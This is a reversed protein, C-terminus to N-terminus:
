AAKKQMTEDYFRYKNKGNIKAQYMAIDANSLLADLEKGDFPYVSIGISASSFIKHKKILFPEVFRSIIKEAVKDIDSRDRITSLMIAFEDGGIRAVTDMKRVCEQLRKALSMLLLDGIEHGLMDNIHKLDDIDLYLLALMGQTRDAVFMAQKLRNNFLRRNTLNTLPDHLALYELKEELNKRDIANSLIVGILKLLLVEDTNWIRERLVSDFGVLGVLLNRRIMPVLVVSKVGYIELFAKELSAQSSLDSVSNIAITEFNILKKAFYPLNKASVDKLKDIQSEIGLACWEHTCDMKTKQKNAVFVYCRDASIFEGVKKLSNNIERDMDSFKLNIFKSSIKAVLDEFNAKFELKKEYSILINMEKKLFENIRSLEATKEKVKKQLEVKSQKLKDILSEKVILEEVNFINIIHWMSWAIGIACIARFFQVPVGAFAIFSDNNFMSAPFFGAKPVILGGLIGYAGFFIAASLFYRRAQVQELKKQESKCYLVLGVSSLIAGPFGLFYRASIKWNMFDAVGVMLPLGLFLVMILSFFWYRLKKTSISMLEYGFLFIFLYSVFLFIPGIVKFLLLEGKIIEFMDVFENLGHTLGFWALLPLINLLKFKSKKTVRLQIFISIGLVVFALGYFFFIVDLNNKLLERIAM